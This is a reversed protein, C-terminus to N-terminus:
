GEAGKDTARGQLKGDDDVWVYFNACDAHYYHEKHGDRSSSIYGWAGNSLPANCFECIKHLGERYWNSETNKNMNYEEICGECDDNNICYPCPQQLRSM